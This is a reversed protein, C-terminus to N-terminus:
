AIASNIANRVLAGCLNKAGAYKQEVGDNTVNACIQGKKNKVIVLDNSAVSASFGFQLVADQIKAIKDSININIQTTMTKPSEPKTEIPTTGKLAKIIPMKESKDLVFHLLIACKRM